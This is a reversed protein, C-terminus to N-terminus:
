NFHRTQDWVTRLPLKLNKGIFVPIHREYPMSYLHDSSAIQEVHEFDDVHDEMRGGVIIVYKGSAQGPGWYWYNNHGCLVPPLTDKRGLFEIAGARGYNTTYIVTEKKISDPLSKYVRVVNAALDRWGFMDAYHQPLPGMEHRENEHGKVGLINKYSIFSEVPLIPLAFPLIIIGFLIPAAILVPKAANWRRATVVDSLQAAGAAFMVPLLPAIYYSKGNTFVFGILVFVYAIGFVRFRRGTGSFFFFWLASLLLISNAPNAELLHASIFNLFTTETNKYLAANRAFELNPFGHVAQWILNPLFIFFATGLSIWLWSNKLQRRHETLLLGLALGIILFAILHKTQLGIGFAIGMFLLYSNRGTTLFRLFFYIGLTWFLQDFVNMSYDAATGLLVPATAAAIAALIQAFTNGGFEAAIKATLFVIYCSLLIPIIRLALLSTGFVATIVSLVADAFPPHDVFGFDLHRSCAIYYFEDRFYDYQTIALLHVLLKVLIISLVPLLARFEKKEM